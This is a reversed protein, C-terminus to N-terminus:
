QPCNAHCLALPAARSALCHWKIENSDGLLRKVIKEEEGQEEQETM